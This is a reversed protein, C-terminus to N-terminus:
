YLKVFAGRAVVRNAIEVHCYGFAVSCTCDIVLFGKSNFIYTIILVIFLVQM